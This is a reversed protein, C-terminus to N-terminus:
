LRVSFRIRFFSSGGFSVFLQRVFFLNNLIDVISLITLTISFVTAQRKQLKLTVCLHVTNAMIIIVATSIIVRETVKDLCIEGTSSNGLDGCISLNSVRLM